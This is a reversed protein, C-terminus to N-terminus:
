LYLIPSISQFVLHVQSASLSHPSQSKLKLAEATLCELIASTYEVAKAGVLINIQTRQRIRELPYGTSARHSFTSLRFEFLLVRRVHCTLRRWNGVKSELEERRM